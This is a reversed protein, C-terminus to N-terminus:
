DAPPRRSGPAGRRNIGTSRKLVVEVAREVVGSGTPLGSSQWTAYDGIWERQTAVYSLAEEVAQLPEQGVAPQLARLRELAQDVAGAWLADDISAYLARREGQYAKGPRAVRIARHVARELHSWDLIKIAEPFHWPAQTKIWAAGDGLM